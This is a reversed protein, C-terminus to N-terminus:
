KNEIIPKPPESALSSQQNSPETEGLVFRAGCSKCQVKKGMMNIRVTFMEKCSRCKVQIM